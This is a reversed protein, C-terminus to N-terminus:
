VTKTAVFASSANLRSISHLGCEEKPGGVFPYDDVFDVVLYLPHRAVRKDAILQELRDEVDHKPTWFNPNVRIEGDAGPTVIDLDQRNETQDQRVGTILAEIGFRGIAASLPDHKTLKRYLNKDHQWLQSEEIEQVTQPSPGIVISKFDFAPELVTDRYELVQDPLLGTDNHIIPINPSIGAQATRQLLDLTLPASLGASTLSYIKSPDFKSVAWEIIQEPSKDALDRNAADIDFDVSPSVEVSM